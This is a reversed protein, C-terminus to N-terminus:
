EESLNLGMFVASPAVGFSIASVQVRGPGELGPYSAGGSGGRAPGPDLSLERVLQTTTDKSVIGQHTNGNSLMCDHHGLM